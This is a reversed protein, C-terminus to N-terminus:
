ARRWFDCFIEWWNKLSGDPRFAWQNCSVLELQYARGMEEREEKSAGPLAEKMEPFYPVIGM